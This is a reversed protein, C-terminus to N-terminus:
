EGRQLSLRKRFTLCTLKSEAHTIGVAREKLEDLFFFRKTLFILSFRDM